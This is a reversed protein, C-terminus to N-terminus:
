ENQDDELSDIADSIKKLSENYDNGYMTSSSKFFTSWEILYNTESKLSELYNTFTNVFQTSDEGQWASPIDAVLTEMRKRENEFEDAKSALKDGTKHLEVFNVKLRKGM